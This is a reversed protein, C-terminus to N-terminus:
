NNISPLFICSLRGKDDADCSTSCLLVAVSHKNTIAKHFLFCLFMLFHLIIRLTNKKLYCHLQSSKFDYEETVLMSAVKASQLGMAVRCGQLM